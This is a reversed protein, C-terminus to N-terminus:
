RSNPQNEIKVKQRVECYAGAQVKQKYGSGLVCSYKGSRAEGAWLNSVFIRFANEPKQHFRWAEEQSEFDGSKISGGFLYVDDVYYYCEIIEDLPNRVGKDSNLRFALEVSEKGKVWKDVDLVLHKWGGEDGEVDNEWIVDDNILIQIRYYGKLPGYYSDKVWASLTYHKQTPKVIVPVMTTTPIGAENSVTLSVNYRGPSKFTYHTRKDYAEPGVADNTDAFNWRYNVIRGDNNDASQSADFLVTLPAHGSAPTATGKALPYSSPPPRGYNNDYIYLNKTVSDKIRFAHEQGLHYFWNQYICAEELPNGRFLIAPEDANRFENHHILTSAGAKKANGHRDFSPQVDHDLCINYRAEYSSTAQAGSGIHHRCFDFLNAEILAMGGGRVWVGYGYGWRRTHHIYNHHIYAGGAVSLDISWKNWAWWECNDVELNEHDARIGNALKIQNYHHDGIEAFPGRLRLGTVRVDKGGTKFLPMFKKDDTLSNSYILAGQSGNLGRGSALTVGGPITQDDAGTMDITANDLIYILMGAKARSLAEVLESRTAVVFNANADSKIDKYGPGGGIPDGTPNLQKIHSGAYTFSLLM